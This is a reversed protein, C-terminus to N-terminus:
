AYYEFQGEANKERKLRGNRVFRALKGSIDNPKIKRAKHSGCYEVIQGITQRKKFFGDRILIELLSAPGTGLSRRRSSRADAGTPVTKKPKRRVRPRRDQQQSTDDEFDDAPEGSDSASTKGQLVLEVIRLQVAESKFANIIPALENLQKKTEDFNKIM